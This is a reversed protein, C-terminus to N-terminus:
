SPFFQEKFIGHTIVVIFGMEGAVTRTSTAGTAIDLGPRGKRKVATVLVIAQRMPALSIGWAQLVAFALVNATLGAVSHSLGRSTEIRM